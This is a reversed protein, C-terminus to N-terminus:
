IQNNWYHNEIYDYDNSVCKKRSIQRELLLSIFSLSDNRPAKRFLKEEFESKDYAGYNILNKNLFLDKGYAFISAEFILAENISTSNISIMGLMNEYIQYKNYIQNSIDIFRGYKSYDYNKRYLPHEKVLISIGKPVIEHIFDLFEENNRFDTYNFKFDNTDKQLPVFIFDKNYTFWGKNFTKKIKEIETFKIEISNLYKEDLDTIESLYGVGKRSIYFHENWPLWGYESFLCKDIGLHEILIKQDEGSGNGMCIYDFDLQNVKNILSNTDNWEILPISNFDMKDYINKRAPDKFSNKIWWSKKKCNVHHLIAVIKHNTRRFFMYFDNINISYRDTALLVLKKRM